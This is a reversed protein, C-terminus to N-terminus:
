PLAELAFCCRSALGNTSVGEEEADAHGSLLIISEAETVCGEYM